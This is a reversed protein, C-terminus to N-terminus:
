LAHAPSTPRRAALVPSTGDLTDALDGTTRGRRTETRHFALFAPPPSSAPPAGASKAASPMVRAVRLGTAPLETSPGDVAIQRDGLADAVNHM